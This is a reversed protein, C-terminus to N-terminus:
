FRYALYTVGLFFLFMAALTAALLSWRVARSYPKLYTCQTSLILAMPYASYLVTQSLITLGFGLQIVIAIGVFGLSGGIMWAVSQSQEERSFRSTSCLRLISSMAEQGGSPSTAPTWQPNVRADIAGAMLDLFLRFSRPESTLLAEVEEGYRRRWARPYLRLMWTM